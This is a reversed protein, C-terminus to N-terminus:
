RRSVRSPERYFFECATTDREAYKLAYVEDM